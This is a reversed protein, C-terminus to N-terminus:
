SSATAARSWARLKGRGRTSGLELCKEFALLLAGSFGTDVKAEM